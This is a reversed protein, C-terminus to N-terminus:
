KIEWNIPNIGKSILFNNTKSFPKSGFFGSYASFPSPHPSEIIAPNASPKDLLSESGSVIFSALAIEAAAAMRSSVPNKTISSISFSSGCISTVLNYSFTTFSILRFYIANYNFAM